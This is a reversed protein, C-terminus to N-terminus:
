MIIYVLVASLNMSYGVNLNRGLTLFLMCLYNVAAQLSSVPQAYRHGVVYLTFTTISGHVRWKWVVCEVWLILQAEKIFSSDLVLHNPTMAVFHQNPTSRILDFTTNQYKVTSISNIKNNPIMRSTIFSSSPESENLFNMMFFKFLVKSGKPLLVNSLDLYTLQVLPHM